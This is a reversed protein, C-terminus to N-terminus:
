AAFMHQRAGAVGPEIAFVSGAEPEDAEDLGLRSTTIYLTRLDPGGFTCATVRSAPLEIVASLSGDAAYRHVRGAGWLAVWVGGDEDIAMGDPLDPEVRAFVRRDHFTGGTADFDYVAIEGTPTDNHFVRSGDASWQLGNAIGLGDLIRHVGGDPDLRYLGGMGPTEAYAMTGCYFRGQPDCGGDNMRVSPDDFASAFPTPQSLSEDALSFGRETAIVFGGGARARVAAAVPSGVPHRLVTGAADMAMIDGALLDVFLLRGGREDWFPGEGHHVCRETVRTAAVM